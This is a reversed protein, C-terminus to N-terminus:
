RTPSLDSGLRATMPKTPVAPAGTPLSDPTFLGAAASITHPSATASWTPSTAMTILEAGTFPPTPRSIPSDNSSPANWESIDVELGDFARYAQV